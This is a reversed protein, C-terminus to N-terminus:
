IRGMKKLQQIDIFVSNIGTFAYEHYDEVKMYELLTKNKQTIEYPFTYPIMELIIVLPRYRAFDISQLIELEQGEIDLNLITPPNDMYQDILANVTTTIVSVTREISLNPNIETFKKAEELSTTSLGDGNLVYFDVMDGESEAICMNLVIDGHRFFKLEPILAPNAEVLVGRVGRKYLQFTNSLHKAHNAGLDLYTISNLPIELEQMLFNIIMDEGSQSFSKTGNQPNPLFIDLELQELQMIKSNLHLIQQNAIHLQPRFDETQQATTQQLTYLQQRLDEIQQTTQHTITQQLTYLQQRLDETQQAAQQNTTQQLTYLQQRLDETQQAAQQNTTQQLTYLQHHLDETQKTTTQQFISLQQSLEQIQQEKQLIIQNLTNEANIDNQQLFGIEQALTSNIETLCGISPTVASNFASQQKCVPEVYWATLKRIVRKVFVVLRGIGRRNSVIPRYSNNERMQELTKIYQNIEEFLPGKIANNLISKVEIEVESPPSAKVPEKKSLKSYLIKEEISQADM